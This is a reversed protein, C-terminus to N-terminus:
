SLLVPRTESRRFWLLRALLLTYFGAATFVLSNIGFEFLVWPILCYAPLLAVSDFLFAKRVGGPFHGAYQLTLHFLLSSFFYFPFVAALLSALRLWLPGSATVDQGLAFCLWTFALVLAVAVSPLSLKAASAKLYYIFFSATAAIVTTLYTFVYFTSIEDGFSSRLWYCLGVFLLGHGLSQFLFVGTLPFPRPEARQEGINRSHLFGIGLVSLVGGILAFALLRRKRKHSMCMWDLFPSADSYNNSCRKRPLDKPGIARFTQPNAISSLEIPERSKRAAFLLRVGDTAAQPEELAHLVQLDSGALSELYRIAPLVRTVRSENLRNVELVLTGGDNLKALYSDIAEKTLLNYPQFIQFPSTNRQDIASELVIWDWRRQSQEVFARGDSALYNVQTVRPNVGNQKMLRVTNQDREVAAINAGLVEEPISTLSRGSGVGILVAQQGSRFYAHPFRAYNDVLSFTHEDQLNLVGVLFQSEKEHYFFTMGRRNWALRDFAGSYNRFYNRASERREQNRKPSPTGDYTGVNRQREIQFDLNLYVLASAAVATGGFALLVPARCLVAAVILFLILGNGGLYVAAQDSFIGGLTLALLFVGYLIHVEHGQDAILLSLQQGLILYILAAPIWCVFIRLAMTAQSDVQLPLMLSCLLFLTLLGALVPLFSRPPLRNPIVFGLGLIAWCLPFFYFTVTQTTQALFGSGLLMQLTIPLYVAGTLLGVLFVSKLNSTKLRGPALFRITKILRM